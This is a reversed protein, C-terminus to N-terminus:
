WSPGSGPYLETDREATRHANSTELSGDGHKMAIWSRVRIAGQTRIKPDTDHPVGHEQSVFDM